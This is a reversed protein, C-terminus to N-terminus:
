RCIGRESSKIFSVFETRYQSDPIESEIRGLADEITLNESYIFRYMNKLDSFHQQSMGSRRVGVVNLGNIQARDGHVMCYPPVDQVVMAGGAIMALKGIKCFQHIAALGGLVASDAIEVHGALAVGNAIIIHDGLICDHAVHTFVMLLNNSGIVTKNAGTVTGISVNCYERFTNNDGIHLETPEDRYKLDQPKSGISAFHFIRNMKGITTKGEIVAHHGVSSEDGITVGEGITAYPGVVVGQGLQAKPHVIATPHISTQSL